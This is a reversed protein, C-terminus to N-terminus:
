LVVVDLAKPRGDNSNGISFEVEQGKKLTKFGDMNIDSYHVFMDEGQWKIFGWGFDNKPLFFIVTGKHRESM